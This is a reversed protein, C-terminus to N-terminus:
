YIIKRIDVLYKLLENNVQEGQPGPLGQSGEKGDKGPSGIEGSKLHKLTLHVM